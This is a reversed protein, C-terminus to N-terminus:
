EEEGMVHMSVAAELARRASGRKKYISGRLARFSPVSRLVIEEGRVIIEVKDKPRINLKNRINSPLTIQGKSSITAFSM